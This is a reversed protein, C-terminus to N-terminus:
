EGQGGSFAMLISSSAFVIWLIQLWVHPCSAKWVAIRGARPRKRPPSPAAALSPMQTPSPPWACPVYAATSNGRGSIGSVSRYQRVYSQDRAKTSVSCFGQCERNLPFRGDRQCASAVISRIARRRALIFRAVEAIRRRSFPFNSGTLARFIQEGLRFQAASVRIPRIYSDFKFIARGGAPPQRRSRGRSDCRARLPGGGYFSAFSHRLDHLRLGPFGARLRVREWDKQLGVYHSAGKAADFRLRCKPSTQVARRAQLAKTTSAYFREVM